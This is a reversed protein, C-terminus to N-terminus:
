RSFPQFPYMSSVKGDTHPQSKLDTVTRLLDIKQMWVGQDNQCHAVDGSIDESAGLVVTM